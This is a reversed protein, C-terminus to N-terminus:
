KIIKRIENWDYVRGLKKQINFCNKNWSQNFLLKRKSNTDMLKSPRDDIHFDYEGQGDDIKDFPIGFKVLWWRLGKEGMIKVRNSYILIEYGKSKWERLTEVAGEYLDPKGWVQEQFMQNIVTNSVGFQDALDYAYIVYKSIDVGFFSQVIRPFDYRCICGDIDVCIRKNWKVNTFLAKVKPFTFTVEPYVITPM